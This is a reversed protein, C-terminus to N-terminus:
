CSDASAAVHWADVVAFAVEATDDGVAILRAVGVPIVDDGDSVEAVLAVHRDDDVATLQRRMTDTLRPRPGHFRVYRSHASMGDFVADIPATEGHALPRICICSTSASDSRM